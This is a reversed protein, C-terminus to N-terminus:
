LDFITNKDGSIQATELKEPVRTAHVAGKEWGLEQKHLM